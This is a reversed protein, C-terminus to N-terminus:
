GGEIGKKRLIDALHKSRQRFVLWSKLRHIRGSKDRIWFGSHWKGRTEARMKPEEVEVGCSSHRWEVMEAWSLRWESFLLSQRIGDDSIIVKSPLLSLGYLLLAIAAGVFYWTSSAPLEVLSTNTGLLALGAAGTTILLIVTAPCRYTLPRM